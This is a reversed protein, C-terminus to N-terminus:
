KIIYGNPMWGWPFTRIEENPLLEKVALAEGPSLEHNFQDLILIGGKTLRNWFVPICAQVVDYTGADMFVLKFQLHPFREFFGLLEKTVDLKHVHVIRELSQAQILQMVREYSESYAYKEVLKSDKDGPDMGKFWDFGHVQTLSEPEFIQTLKTLWLLSAGKHIGVEAIHGAVGLTKKYCEYLVLFRSVTMHGVFCPFHHILDEFAYGLSKITELGAYYSEHRHAFKMTELQGADYGKDKSM